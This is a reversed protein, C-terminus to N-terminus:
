LEQHLLPKLKVLGVYYKLKNVFHAKSVMLLIQTDLGLYLFGSDAVAGEDFVNLSGWFFNKLQRRSEFLKKKLM